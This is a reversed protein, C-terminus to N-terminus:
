ESAAADVADYVFSGFFVVAQDATVVLERPEAGEEEALPPYFAAYLADIEEITKGPIDAPVGLAAALLPSFKIHAIWAGRPASPMVAQVLPLKVCVGEPTKFSQALTHPAPIFAREDLYASLKQTYEATDQWFPVAPPMPAIPASAPPGPRLIPMMALIFAERSFFTPDPIVVPPKPTPLLAAEDADGQPADPSAAAEAVDAPPADSSDLAPADQPAATDEPQGEAAPGDANAAGEGDEPGAGAEAGGETGEAVPTEAPLAAEGEGGEAVGEQVAEPGAVEQVEPPAVSLSAPLPGSSAGTLLGGLKTDLYEHLQQAISKPPQTSAVPAPAAIKEEGEAPAAELAADVPPAPEPEPGLLAPPVALITALLANNRVASIFAELVIVARNESDLLAFLGAASDALSREVADQADDKTRMKAIKAAAEIHRARTMADVVIELLVTEAAQYHTAKTVVDRLLDPM